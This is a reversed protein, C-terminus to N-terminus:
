VCIHSTWWQWWFWALIRAGDVILEGIYVVAEVFEGVIAIVRLRGSITNIIEVAIAEPSIAAVIVKIVAIHVIFVRISFVTGYIWIQRGHVLLMEDNTRM